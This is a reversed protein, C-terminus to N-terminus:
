LTAISYPPLEIMNDKIARKEHTVDSYRQVVKNKGAFELYYVSKGNLNSASM